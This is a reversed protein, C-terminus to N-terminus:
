RLEKVVHEAEDVLERFEDHTLEIGGYKIRSVAELLLGIKKRANEDAHKEELLGGIEDCAATEHLHFYGKLFEMVVATLEHFNNENAKRSRLEHIKRLAHLKLHERNEAATHKEEKKTGFLM